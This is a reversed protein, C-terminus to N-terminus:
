ATEVTFPSVGLEAVVRNMERAAEVFEPHLGRKIYYMRVREPEVGLEVLAEKVAEVRLGARQSGKENHCGDKPCGVVYVGDAGDEFAKLLTLEDLRGTCVLRHISINEPLGLKLLEDSQSGAGSHQAAYHCTFLKIRPVFDM